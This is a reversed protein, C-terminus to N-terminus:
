LRWLGKERQARAVIRVGLEHTMDFEGSGPPAQILRDIIRRRAVIYTRRTFNM